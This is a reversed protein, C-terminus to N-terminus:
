SGVNARVEYTVGAVGAADTYNTVRSIPEDNVKVGDRYIDFTMSSDDSALSRWSLFVGMDTKVAVVGRNLYEAQPAAAASLAALATICSIFFKKM